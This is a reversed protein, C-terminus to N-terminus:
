LKHILVDSFFKSLNIKFEEPKVSAVIEQDSRSLNLIRNEAFHNSRISYFIAVMPKLPNTKNAKIVIALKDNTLKVVSGVPHVGLCQIFQQVLIPDYRDDTLLSKLAVPPTVGLKYPRNSVMADYSDVIAAMKVYQSVSEASKNNSYGSGDMREHHNFVIERVIDSVDGCREVIDIGIDVHTTVIDREQSTLAGKKYTIDEPINAMGVDMLLGSFSLEDVVESPLELHKAFKTLLISCNLSHNLLYQDSKKLLSICSLANPADMVSDIIDLSLDHIKTLETTHESKIKKIFGSQTTLAQDYLKDASSLQESISKQPKEKKKPVPPTTVTDENLVSKSPDIEVILVGKDKLGQIAAQTKVMGKSKIKLKGTQKVVNDVYMGPVLKEIDLQQLM